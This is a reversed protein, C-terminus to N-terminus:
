PDRFVLTIFWIDTWIPSKMPKITVITFNKADTYFKNLYFDLDTESKHIKTEYIQM